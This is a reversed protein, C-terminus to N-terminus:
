DSTAGERSRPEDKLRYVRRQPAHLHVIMEGVLGLAVAQVGLMILLGSLLLLPRDFMPEGLFRQVVLIVMFRHRVSFEVVREIM